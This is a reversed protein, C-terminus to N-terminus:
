EARLAVVPDVRAARRAPLLCAVSAAVLLLCLVGLIIRPDFPSVEYLLKHIVQTLLSAAVLGCAFGALVLVLGERLVLALVSRTRAGLALRIGFERTRSAVALALQGYLGVVALLLALISFSELLAMTLRRPALSSAIAEEMTTTTGLPQEPDLSQVERRIAHSLALPDSKKARVLLSVARSPFQAACFYMQPMQLLEMGEGPAENRTRRVVGVIAVPPAHDDETQNSDIYQGIPDRGAFYRNALSEDIIVVRPDSECDQPGFDRGRYISIGLLRFYESSVLSVEAAPAEGPKDPPTGTIHFASDSSTGDFPVNDGIAAGAVGPLARVRQVLETFFAAIKPDSDYRTPPIELKMMVIRRPDFGLPVDQILRFSKRLLGAGTLLVLALAVQTVVLMAQARGRAPGGSDGRTGGERLRQSLGDTESARWAPWAGALLGTLLAVGGAFVFARWDLQTEHLRPFEVAALAQIATLSWAALLVGLGGGVAALLASETLLQRVLRGRTAGLAARVALERARSAARALQLSALNACAIVLVCGVAGLLFFLSHRYGGVASELLIHTRVRRSTNTEPYKQELGAAIVDLDATAQELTVGPKLRGLAAFRPHNGRNLLAPQNRLEGLPLYIECRPPHQLEDPTVGIVTREVGDIKVRQGIVEPTAYFARRWLSSSILAVAPGGPADDQETFARGLRPTLGILSFFAASTRATAVREPTAESGRLVAFNHSERRYLALDVFGHQAARWDVFNPYSVAGLDFHVARERIIVLRDPDPYPLPRLLVANVVSFIATNAGIGLALTIVALATFGPSERLHRFAVRLDSLM